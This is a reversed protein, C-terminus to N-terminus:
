DSKIKFCRNYILTFTSASKVNKEIAWLQQIKLNSVMGLKKVVKVEYFVKNSGIILNRRFRQLM